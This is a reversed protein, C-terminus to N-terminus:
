YIFNVKSEGFVKTAQIYHAITYENSSEEEKEQAYSPVCRNWDLLLSAQPGCFSGIRASFSCYGLIKGRHVTPTLEITYLYISGFAAAVLMSGILCSLQEVTLVGMSFRIMALLFFVGGTFYKLNQMRLNMNMGLESAKKRRLFNNERGGLYCIMLTIKRGIYQLAFTMLIYAFIEGVASLFLM